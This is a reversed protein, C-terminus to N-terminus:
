WLTIVVVVIIVVVIVTIIVLVVYAVSMHPSAEFFLFIGSLLSGQM